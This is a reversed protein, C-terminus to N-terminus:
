APEIQIRVGWQGRKCKEQAYFFHIRPDNDAIDLADAIGDRIAKTAGQLNDGDLVGNSLRTITVKCPLGRSPLASRVIMRTQEREKAVRRHRAMYHERDNLGNGTKIPIEVIM